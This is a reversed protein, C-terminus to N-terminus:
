IKKGAHKYPRNENYNAKDLVARALDIGLYECLDLCRILVDAMEEGIQSHDPIKQSAPNGVRYAELAESVESHILALKVPVSSNEGESWFGKNKSNQHVNRQLNAVTELFIAASFMSM